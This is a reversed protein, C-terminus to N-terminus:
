KRYNDMAAAGGAVESLETTIATQRARNLELSLKQVLEDTNDSAATMATMRSAHEGTRAELMVAFVSNSIYLETLSDILSGRDPEFIYDATVGSSEPRSVPLLVQSRPLQVLINKFGEYVLVIRDAEGDLYLKKLYETVEAAASSDPTDSLMDFTKRVPIGTGAITERGWRGCVVLFGTGGGDEYLKKMHHLLQTNYAGCLGRNGVFLVYCTRGSDERPTLFANDAAGGAAVQALMDRCAESFPILAQMAGQTRRLKSVSVTKMSKTLQGTSQISKIRSRLARMNAM